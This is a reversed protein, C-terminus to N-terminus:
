CNITQFVGQIESLPWTVPALLSQNYAQYFKQFPRPRVQSRAFMTALDMRLIRTIGNLNTPNTLTAVVRAPVAITGRERGSTSNCYWMEVDRLM